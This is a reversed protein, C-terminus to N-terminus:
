SAAAAYTPITISGFDKSDFRLKKLGGVMGCAVGVENNYEFSEEVWRFRDPEGGMRGTALAAAQAGAFIARRTDDVEASSSSNVGQPVRNSEVLLVGNYTGLAGTFIPNDDSRGSRLMDRNLATWFSDTARLQTTQYPHIFCVYYEGVGEIKAPRISPTLTKAKEVAKDLLDLTFPHADTLSEDASISAPRFIRSSDPASISNNGTLSTDTDDAYVAGALQYFFWRDFVAAFYDALAARAEERMDFTIRQADIVNYFRVADRVQNIVIDDYYFDLTRENGELAANGQKPRTSDDIQMRLGVRLKDGPGRTLEDRWQLLHSSTKGAFNFAVTKKLAEAEVGKAWVRPSLANGTAFGQVAM